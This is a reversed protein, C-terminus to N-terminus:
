NLDINASVTRDKMIAHKADFIIWYRGKGLNVKFNSGTTKGSNYITFAQKGAKFLNYGNEDFVYVYVSDTAQFTGALEGQNLIGVRFGVESYTGHKVVFQSNILAQGYGIQFTTAIFILVFLVGAINKKLM